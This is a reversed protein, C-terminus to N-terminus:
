VVKEESIEEVFEMGLRAADYMRGVVHHYPVGSFYHHSRTPIDEGEVWEQRQLAIYGQEQHQAM